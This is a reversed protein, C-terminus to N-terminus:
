ELWALPRTILAPAHARVVQAPTIGLFHKLSRTLHPQDAYGLRFVVEAIPLGQELLHAAQRAREIQQLTKPTLGTVHLFRRRLTRSSLEQSQHHLANKVVPDPILLGSHELRRVFVDVDEFDPIQLASGNLWVSRSSAGPLLIQGDVRDATPLYPMYTGLKFQIGFYETDQSSFAPTAKTEPGRVAMHTQGQHKWVVMEWHSIAQSIFGVVQDTRSRWLTEVLASDSPRQEVLISM